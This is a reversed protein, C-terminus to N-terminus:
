KSAGEKIRKDMLALAEEAQRLAEIEQAYEKAREPDQKKL